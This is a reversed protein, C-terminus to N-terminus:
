MGDRKGTSTPGMLVTLFHYQHRSKGQFGSAEGLRLWKNDRFCPTMAVGFIWRPYRSFIDWTAVRKTVVSTLMAM